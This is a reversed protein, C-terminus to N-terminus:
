QGGIAEMRQHLRRIRGSLASCIALAIQPYERVMDNFDEKHLYLLRTKELTVISASRKADEFLAMEGFYDGTGMQDLEMEAGDERKKLVAVSGSIILYLTDGADSQEIVRKDAEYDIEESATAVASLESVSLGEFIDIRKLLLIKESITTPSEMSDESEQPKDSDFQSAQQLRRAAQQVHKRSGDEAAAQLMEKDVATMGCETAMELVLTRTVWHRSGMLHNVLDVDKGSFPELKFFKRAASLKQEVPSADILPLIFRAVSKDLLDGLAEQSNAQQRKDSSLLGRSVIRMKGSSDQAALVRVMNEIQLQGQQQLHTALLERQSCDSLGKAAESENLFRYAGEAQSRVFRVIDLDKIDLVDLIKFIEERVQRRPTQIARVLQKGDHFPADIIAARTREVVQPSTDGLLEVARRLAGKDEIQFASVAVQRIQASPHALDAEVLENLNSPAIERLAKITAERIATSTQQGLINTLLPVFDENRSVGAVTVGALQEDHDSGNQVWSRIMEGYRQPSSPLMAAAAHARVTLSPSDLLHALDVRTHLAQPVLRMM